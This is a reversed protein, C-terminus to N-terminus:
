VGIMREEGLVTMNPFVQGFPSLLERFLSKNFRDFPKRVTM